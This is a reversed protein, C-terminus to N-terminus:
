AQRTATGLLHAIMWGNVGDAVLVVYSGAPQNTFIMDKDDTATFGNGAIKDSANPSITVTIGEKGVRFIFVAGVVTALLTMVKGTVTVNQVIGCDTLALTKDAVVDVSENHGAGLLNITAM